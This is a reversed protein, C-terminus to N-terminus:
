CTAAACRNAAHAALPWWYWRTSGGGARRSRRVGSWWPMPPWGGTAPGGSRHSRRRCCLVDGVDGPRVLDLLAETRGPRPVIRADRASGGIEALRTGLVSVDKLVEAAAPGDLTASHHRQRGVTFRRSDQRRATKSDCMM